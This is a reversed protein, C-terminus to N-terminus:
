TEPDLTPETGEVQVYDMGALLMAFVIAVTANLRVAQLAMWSNFNGSHRLRELSRHRVYRPRAM